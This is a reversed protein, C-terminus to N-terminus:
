KETVVTDLPDPVTKKQLSKVKADVNDWFHYYLRFPISIGNRRFGAIFQKFARFTIEIKFRLGYLTIITLPDMTLDTRVLIATTDENKVLFRLLEYRENGGLFIPAYICYMQRKETCTYRAGRFRM